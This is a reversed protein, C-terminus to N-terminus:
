HESTRLLTLQHIQLINFPLKRRLRNRIRVRRDGAWAGLRCLLDGAALVRADAFVFLFLGFCFRSESSARIVEGLM